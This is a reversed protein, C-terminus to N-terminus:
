YIELWFLIIVLGVGTHRRELHHSMRQFGRVWRGRGFLRVTVREERLCM